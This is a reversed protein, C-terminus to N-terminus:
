ASKVKLVQVEPLQWTFLTVVVADVPCSGLTIFSSAFISRSENKNRARSIRQDQLHLHRTGRFRRNVKLLTCLTANCFISSKLDLVTQPSHLLPANLPAKKHMLTFLSEDIHLCKRVNTVDTFQSTFCVQFDTCYLVGNSLTQFNCWM